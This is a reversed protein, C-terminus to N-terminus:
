KGQSQGQHGGFPDSFTEEPYIGINEFLRPQDRTKPGEKCLFIFWRDGGTLRRGAPPYSWDGYPSGGSVGQRLYKSSMGLLVYLSLHM